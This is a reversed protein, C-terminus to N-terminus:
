VKLIQPHNSKISQLKLIQIKSGTTQFHKSKVGKRKLIQIKGRYKPLTQIKSGLTKPHKSIIGQQHGSKVFPVLPLFHGVIHFLHPSFLLTFVLLSSHCSYHDVPGCFYYTALFSCIPWSFGFFLLLGMPITFPLFSTFPDPFGLFHILLNMPNAYLGILGFPLLLYPHPLQGLFGLPNLLFEHSHFLYPLLCHASSAQHIFHTSSAWPIFHASSAWPMSNAPGTSFSAM